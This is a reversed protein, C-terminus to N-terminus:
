EVTHRVGCIRCVEITYTDEHKCDAMDVGTKAEQITRRLDSRSLLTSQELWHIADDKSKVLPLTEAIVSWGGAGAIQRPEIGYTIVFKQYINILKSATGESINKFEMVYESFSSWQGEYMKRERINYLREGLSLFSVEITDKLLLADNCYSINDLENKM